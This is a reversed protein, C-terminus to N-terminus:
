GSQPRDGPVPDLVALVIFVDVTATAIAGARYRSQLDLGEIGEPQRPELRNSSAQLGHYM